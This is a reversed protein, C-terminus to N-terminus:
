GTRGFPLRQWWPRHGPAAPDQEESQHDATSGPNTAVLLRTQRELLVHLESVERTRADLQDRLVEVMSRLADTEGTLPPPAQAAEEPVDVLWTFGQPTPAQVGTLEGRRLRRRVTDVSVGLRAAAERLPVRQTM